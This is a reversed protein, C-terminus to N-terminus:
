IIRPEQSILPNTDLRRFASSRGGISNEMEISPIRKLAILWTAPLGTKQPPNMKKANIPAKKNRGSSGTGPFRVFFPLTPKKDSAAMRNANNNM